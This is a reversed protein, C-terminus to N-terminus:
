LVSSLIGPCPSNVLIWALHSSPPQGVRRGEQWRKWNISPPTVSLWQQWQWDTKTLSQGRTLRLRLSFESYSSSTISNSDCCTVCCDDPLWFDLSSTDILRTCRCLALIIPASLKCAFSVWYKHEHQLWQPPWSFRTFIINTSRRLFHIWKQSQKNQHCYIHPAGGCSKYFTLGWQDQQFCVLIDVYIWDALTISTSSKRHAPICVTSYIQLFM